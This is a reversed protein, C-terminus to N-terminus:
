TRCRYEGIPEKDAYCKDFVIMVAERATSPEVGRIAQVSKTAKNQVCVKHQGVFSSWSGGDRLAASLPSGCHALAAARIKPIINNM